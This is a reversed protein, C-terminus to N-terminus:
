GRGSTGRATRVARRRGPSPAAVSRATASSVRASWSVEGNGTVPRRARGGPAAHDSREPQRPAIDRLEVDSFSRRRRRSPRPSGTSTSCSGRRSRLCVRALPENFGILRNASDHPTSTRPMPPNSQSRRAIRSGARAGLPRHRRGLDLLRRRSWSTASHDDAAAFSLWGVTRRDPVRRCALPSPSVPPAVSGTSRSRRHPRWATGRSPNTAVDSSSM